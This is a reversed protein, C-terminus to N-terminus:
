IRNLIDIAKQTCIDTLGYGLDECDPHTTNKYTQVFNNLQHSEMDSDDDLIVYNEIPENKSIWEDIEKGRQLTSGTSFMHNPTIGIVEGKLGRKTWMAVMKEYGSIRWSSSIVIKANTERIIRELNSTFHPNFIAGFEDFSKTVVNLVGDVDLFIIKM